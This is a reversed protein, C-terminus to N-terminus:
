FTFCIVLKLKEESVILCYQINLESLFYKCLSGRMLGSNFKRRGLLYYKKVRLNYLFPVM